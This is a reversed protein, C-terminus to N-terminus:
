NTINPPFKARSERKCNSCTKAYARHEIVQLRLPLPLEFEQRAEFTPLVNLETLDSHCHTCVSPLYQETQDPESVQYLAQGEHGKKPSRVFATADSSPPKSSNHSDQALRAELLQIRELLQAVLADRQTIQERLALNETKLEFIQQHLTM